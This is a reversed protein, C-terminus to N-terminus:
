QLNAADKIVQVGFCENIYKRIMDKSEQTQQIQFGATYIIGSPQVYMGLQSADRMHVALQASIPFTYKVQKGAVVLEGKIAGPDNGIYLGEEAATRRLSDPNDTQLLAIGKMTSSQRDCVLSLSHVGKYDQVNGRMYPIGNNDAMLWESSIIGDDVVKLGMLTKKDILVVDGATPSSMYRYLTPDIGMDRMFDAMAQAVEPAQELTFEQDAGQSRYFRHLGFTSASNMFRYTGGMYAFPCASICAGPTNPNTTGIHTILGLSRILHGLRMGELRNGANSDLYIEGGPGIHHEAAFITLKDVTGDTIDGTAHIVQFLGLGYKSYDERHFTFTMAAASASLPICILGVLM